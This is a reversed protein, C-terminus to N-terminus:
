EESIDIELSDEEVYDDEGGLEVYDLRSNRLKGILWKVGCAIGVGAATVAAVIVGKPVEKEEVIDIEEEFEVVQEIEQNEKTM